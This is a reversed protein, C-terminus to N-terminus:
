TPVFPCAAIVASSTVSPLVSIQKPVRPEPALVSFTRMVEAPSTPTPVLEGATLKCTLAEPFRPFILQKLESTLVTPVIRKAATVSLTPVSICNKVRGAAPTVLAIL